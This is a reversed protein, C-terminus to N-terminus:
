VREAEEEEPNGSVDQKPSLAEIDGMRLQSHSEVDTGM